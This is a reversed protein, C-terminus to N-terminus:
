DAPYIENGGGWKDSENLVIKNAKLLETVSYSSGIFFGEKATASWVFAGRSRQWHGPYHRHFDTLTLNLENKVRDALREFKTKM